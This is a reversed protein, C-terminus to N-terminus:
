PILLISGRLISSINGAKDKLRVYIRKVQPRNGELPELQWDFEEQYPQWNTDSFGPSNSVQMQDVSSELDRATIKVKVTVGNTNASSAGNNIIVIGWPKTRDYIISDSSIESTTGDDFKFQAYVTNEGLLGSLYWNLESEPNQWRPLISEKKFPFNSLRIKSTNDPYNLSIKVKKNITHDDGDNIVVESQIVKPIMTMGLVVEEGQPPVDAGFLNVKWDGAEPNLITYVEFTSGRDHVVDLAVTNRDIVRGSPSTLTMVVDSGPWSISFTAQALKSLVTKILSLVGGPSVVNVTCPGPTVGAIKARVRQFECVFGTTPLRAFEGGTNSAISQLLVDDADGFGFTYIPWKRGEKKFCEHQNNYDGQGDTLLIAAKKQNGSTSQSLAECGKGVGLGVNTGGSSDISNIASILSQNNEPLKVLPSALRVQGDFDVVGAFDGNQSVTLYARAASLRHNDKDNSGMSGSSDIILVTDVAGPVPTPLPTVQKCEIPGIHNWGPEYMLYKAKLYATPDLVTLDPDLKYPKSNPYDNPNFNPNMPWFDTGERSFSIHLHTGASTGFNGQTGIRQGAEVPDGDKIERTAMHTFYASLNESEYQQGFKIRLAYKSFYFVRGKFPAYIATIGPTPNGFIDLGSHPKCNIWQANEEHCENVHDKDRDKYPNCLPNNFCKFPLRLDGETPLFFDSGPCKRAQSVAANLNNMRNETQENCLPRPTTIKFLDGTKFSLPSRSDDNFILSEIIEKLESFESEANRSVQTFTLIEDKHKVLVMMVTDLSCAEKQYFALAPNSNVDFDAQKKYLDSFIQRNKEFWVSLSLKGTNKYGNIVIYSENPTFIMIQRVGKEYPDDFPNIKWDQSHNFGIGLVQDNYSVQKDATQEFNDPAAAYLKQSSFIWILCLALLSTLFVFLFKYKMM